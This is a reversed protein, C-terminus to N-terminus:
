NEKEADQIDWARHIETYRNLIRERQVALYAEDIDVYICHECHGQIDLTITDFICADNEWYICFCNKCDM